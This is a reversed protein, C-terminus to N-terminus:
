SSDLFYLDPTRGPTSSDSSVRSGRLSVGSFHSRSELANTQHHSICPSYLLTRRATTPTQRKHDAPSSFPPKSLPRANLCVKFQGRREDNRVGKWENGKKKARRGGGKKPGGRSESRKCSLCAVFRVTHCVRGLALFRKEDRCWSFDNEEAFV